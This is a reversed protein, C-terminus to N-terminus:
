ELSILAAKLQMPLTVTPAFVDESEMSVNAEVMSEADLGDTFFGTGMSVMSSRRTLNEFNISLRFDSPSGLIDSYSSDM